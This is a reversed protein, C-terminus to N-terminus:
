NQDNWGIFLTVGGVDGAASWIPCLVRDITEDLGRQGFVPQCRGRLGTLPGQDATQTEIEQPERRTRTIDCSKNCIWRRISVLPEDIAQQGIRVKAFSPGAVPKIQDAVGLGPTM